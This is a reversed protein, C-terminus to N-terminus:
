QPHKLAASAVPWFIDTRTKDPPTSADSWYEEWMVEAPERGTAKMWSQIASYAAPLSDYGGLHTTVAAECEPLEAPVVNGNGIIATSVVFGAWVDFEDQGPKYYAIAPAHIEVGAQSLYKHVASFAAGIRQSIESVSARFKVVALDRRPQIKLEIQYASM